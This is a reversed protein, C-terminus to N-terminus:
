QNVSSPSKIPALDPASSTTINEPKGVVIITLQEPHILTKAVRNVDEITVREIMENRRNIFDPDLGDLQYNRMLAAIKNTSSFGLPYGGTLRDKIFRLEDESVGKDKILQWQEKIIDIVEKVKTNQTSTHGLIYHSNKQWMLDIGIGYTLGRRERVENWLRSHFESDGLIKALLYAAYFDPDQRSIGPQYFLIASQPIDMPVVTLSGDSHPSIFDIALPAAKDVLPEFTQDIMEKLADAELSSAISIVLQDRAFREKMFAHFDDVRILPLENITAKLSIGYPHGPFAKQNFVDSAVAHESFNAQMLETLLQQKVRSQADKDFRPQTLIKKILDFADKANDKITRMSFNFTDPSAGIDLSINKELLYRKYATASLEGAGENLLEGLVMTLGAKGKPDAKAGANTFTITASIVPIDPTHVYWIKLGLKTELVQIHVNSAQPKIAKQQPSTSLGFAGSIFGYQPLATGMLTAIVAPFFKM